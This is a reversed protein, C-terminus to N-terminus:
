ILGTKEDFGYMINMNQVAQGSAGKLLNDIVSVIIAIDDFVKIGIDCFNTGSVDLIQPFDGSNRLRVFPEADYIDSYISMMADTDPLGDHKVYITSLIGRRVPLLHPIFNVDVKGGATNSLIYSMEPMHQHENAKYCKLNEGVEGFCLPIAAKRGAGTAGSKSDVLPKVGADSIMKAIPMLGLIVSTPYCGPNAVLASVKIKDRNLEPLGYVADKLNGDDSHTTNYWKEYEEVPLRYDASLDIVKKGKKLFEPAYKMSVTHPLALFVLETKECVDDIDLETCEIDVKKAFRPFLKSFAEPKEVIATLSTIEVEPHRSLCEVLEEGTYGTAGVVGVKLM